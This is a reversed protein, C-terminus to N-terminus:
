KHLWSSLCVVEQTSDKHKSFASLQLPRRLAASSEGAKGWRPLRQLCSQTELGFSALCPKKTGRRSRTISASGWSARLAEM